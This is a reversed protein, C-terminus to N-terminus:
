YYKHVYKGYWSINAQIVIYALLEYKSFLPKTSEKAYFNSGLRQSNLPRVRACTKFKDIYSECDGFLIRICKKQTIFLPKLQNNSIGGWVSMAYGLHSEFLSHYILKNTRCYSSYILCTLYAKIWPTSCTVCAIDRAICRAYCQSSFFPKEISLHREADASGIM